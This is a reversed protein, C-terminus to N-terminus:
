GVKYYYISLYGRKGRGGLHLHGAANRFIYLINKGVGIANCIWDYMTNKYCIPVVYMVSSKSFNFEGKIRFSFM